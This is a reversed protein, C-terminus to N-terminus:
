LGAIEEGIARFAAPKTILEMHKVGELIRLRLSRAHAVVDDQYASPRFDEDESGVILVSPRSLRALGARYDRGPRFNMMMRFAYDPTTVKRDEPGLAFSLATLGNFAKIRVANLLRLAAIRGAHAYAWGNDPRLTPSEEHIFPALLLYASAEEGYRSAAFRLAFGGGASFGALVLRRALGDKALQEILDALDDELQGVYDLDGSRGWGHGRLDLTVCRAIEAEALFAALGHMSRGRSSSGHILVVTKEARSPYLRYPIKAGDRAPAHRVEPLDSYDLDDLGTKFGLGERPPGVEAKGFALLGALAALGCLVLGALLWVFVVM